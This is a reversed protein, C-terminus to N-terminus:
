RKALLKRGQIGIEKSSLVPRAGGAIAMDLMTIGLEDNYISFHPTMLFGIITHFWSSDATAPMVYGPKVVYTKWRGQAKPDNSFEVIKNESAGQLIM